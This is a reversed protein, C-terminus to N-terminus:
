IWCTSLIRQIRFISRISVIIGFIFLLFVLFFSSVRPTISPRGGELIFEKVSEHSEFPQRLTLLEYLFM